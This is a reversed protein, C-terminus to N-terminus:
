RLLICNPTGPNQNKLLSTEWRIWADVSRPEHNTSEKMRQLCDQRSFVRLVEQTTIVGDAVTGVVSRGELLPTDTPPM